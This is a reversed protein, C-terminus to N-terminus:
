LEGPAATVEVAAACILLEDGVTDFLQVTGDVAEGDDEVVCVGAVVM